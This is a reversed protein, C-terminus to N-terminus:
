NVRNYTIELDLTQPRNAASDSSFEGSYLTDGSVLMIDYETGTLGAERRDDATFMYSENYSISYVKVSTITMDVHTATGLETEVKGGPHSFRYSLDARSLEALPVTCAGNSYFEGRMVVQSDNITITTVSYDSNSDSADDILCGTKWTGNFESTIIKAAPEESGGCAFLMTSLVAVAPVKILNGNFM